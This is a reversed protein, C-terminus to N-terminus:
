REVGSVQLQARNASSNTRHTCNRVYRKGGGAADNVLVRHDRHGCSQAPGGLHERASDSRRLCPRAGTVVAPRNCGSNYAFPWIRGCPPNRSPRLSRALAGFSLDRGWVCCRSGAHWERRGITDACLASLDSAMILTRPALATGGSIKDTTFSQAIEAPEEM